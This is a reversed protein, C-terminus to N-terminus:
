YDSFVIRSLDAVRVSDDTVRQTYVFVNKLIRRLQPETLASTTDDLEFDAVAKATLSILWQDVNANYESIALWQNASNDTRQSLYCHHDESTDVAIAGMQLRKPFAFATTYQTGGSLSWVQATLEDEPFEPHGDNAITAGTAFLARMATYSYVLM